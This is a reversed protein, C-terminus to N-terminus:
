EHQYLREQAEEDDRFARRTTVIADLGSSNRACAYQGM